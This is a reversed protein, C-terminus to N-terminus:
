ESSNNIENYKEYIEKLFFYGNEGYIVCIQDAIEKQNLSYLKNVLEKIQKIEYPIPVKYKLMELFLLGIKEPSKDINNHFKDYIMRPNYQDVYKVSVKLWHFIDDDIEKAIDIWDILEFAINQYKINKEKKLIVKYIELWLPKIKEQIKEPAERYITKIFRVLELIQKDKEKNLIQAILSDPDEIKEWGEAYGICVNQVVKEIAYEESFEYNVAEPLVNNNKLLNYIQPYVRNVNAFYGIVSSKWLLDKEKPFIRKINKIVWNKNLYYLNLLYAGLTYYFEPTEEKNLRRTFDQEIEEKWRKIDPLQKNLRVYRLSYSLMSRFIKYKTSNIIRFQLDDYKSLDSETKNVLILLIKEVLPLFEKDFANEDERTGEHILEAIESIISNKYNYYEKKIEVEWFGKYNEYKPDIIKLIYNFTNEWNFVKKEQCARYLGQLIISQFQFQLTLLPKFNDVFKDPREIVAKRLSDEIRSIYFRDGPKKEKQKLSDFYDVIKNNDMKLLDEVSILSDDEGWKFDMWIVKGPHPLKTPNMNKYTEYEELVKNNKSELLAELWERKRLAILKKDKEVYEKSNIWDIIQLIQEESFDKSHDKFLEFLEPKLEYNELPDRQWSWFIDGLEQYHHNIVHIAIRKFINHKENKLLVTIYERIFEPKTEEYIDRIFDIIQYHYNDKTRPQKGDKITWVDHIGFENEESELIEKIKNIGIEAAEKGCISAIDEKHKERFRKFFLDDFVLKYKEGYKESDVKYSLFVDLLNLLLDKSKSKIIKPIFKEVLTNVFLDNGWRTNIALKIFEIHSSGLIETPLNCLTELLNLDTYINNIRKHNEDRYKIIKDIVKFLINSIEKNEIEKNDEAIKKLYEMEYWVPTVYGEKNDLKYVRPNNKPNFYGYKVLYKLWMNNNKSSPLAITFLYKKLGENNKILNIIQNLNDESVKRLLSDMIKIKFYFNDKM